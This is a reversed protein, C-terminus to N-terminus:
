GARNGDPGGAPRGSPADSLRTGDAGGGEHVADDEAELARLAAQGEELAAVREPWSVSGVELLDIETGEIRTDLPVARKLRELAEGVTCDALAVHRGDALCLVAPHELDEVRIGSGMWDALERRLELLRAVAEALDATM